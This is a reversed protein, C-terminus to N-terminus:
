VRNGGADAGTEPLALFSDAQACSAILSRRPPRIMPRVSASNLWDQNARAVQPRDGTRRWKQSSRRGKSPAGREEVRM